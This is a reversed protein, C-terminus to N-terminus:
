WDAKLGDFEPLRNAPAPDFDFPGFELNLKDYLDKPTKAFQNRKSKNRGSFLNKFIKKSKSIRREM